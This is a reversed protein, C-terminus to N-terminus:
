PQITGPEAAPRTEMFLIDDGHGRRAVIDAAASLPEHRHPRQLHAAILAPVDEGLRAAMYSAHWREEEWTGNMRSRRRYMEIAPDIQGLGWLAQATYYIARPDNAAVGPALLEVDREHKRVRNAGDVHHRITLGLLPRQRHGQLDLIEHTPGAYAWDIGGRTLRPFRFALPGEFMEVLWADVTPDPDTDLWARLDEHAEVTQDADLMITWDHDRTLALAATRADAFGAWERTFVRAGADSALERTRDTSGTDVVVVDDVLTRASEIARGLIAEEDRAIMALAVTM